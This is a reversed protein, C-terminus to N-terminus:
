DNPSRMNIAFNIIFWLFVAIGLAWCSGLLIYIIINIDEPSFITHGVTRTVVMTIAVVIALIMSLVLCERITKM